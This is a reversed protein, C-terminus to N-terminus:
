RQSSFHTTLYGLVIERVEPGYDFMGQDTIMWDWLYAWREDTLRQQAFTATSHCATCSYFTDEMGPADPLNDFDANLPIDSLDQQAPTQGGPLMPNQLMPNTVTPNPLMPNPLMPNPLMPNQAIGASTMAALALCALATRALTRM